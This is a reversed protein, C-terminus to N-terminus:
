GSRKSIRCTRSAWVAASTRTRVTRSCSCFVSVRWRAALCRSSIARCRISGTAIRSCWCSRDKARWRGCAISSCDRSRPRACSRMSRRPSTTTPFRCASFGASCRRGRCWPLTSRRWSRRWRDCRSTRRCAATSAFCSRGSRTGSWIARTGASRSASASRSPSGEDTGSDARVRGRSTIEGHGSRGLHGRNARPRRAGRRAECRAHRARGPPRGDAPRLEGPPAVRAAELGDARM